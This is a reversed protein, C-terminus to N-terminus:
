RFKRTPVIVIGGDPAEMIKVPTGYHATLLSETLVEENPGAAAVQGDEILVTKQGFRSATTLDHMAALVTLGHELRLEDVLELVAIQNGLDLASTPEDLILTGPEQVLARAMAVRQAEGGSLESVARDALSGLDLREIISAVHKRDSESERSLWGLHATRGLLIFEAATMGEPLSGRQPVYAVQRALERGQFKHKGFRVSGEYPVVGAISKLITSKGAGNAGIITTWDGGEASFSVGSVIATDGYSVTLGEVNVAASKAKGKM